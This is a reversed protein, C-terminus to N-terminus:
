ARKDCSDKQKKMVLKRLAAVEKESLEEDQEQMLSRAEAEDVPEIVFQIEGKYIQGDEAVFLVTGMVDYVCDSDMFGGAAEFLEESDEIGQEDISKTGGLLWKAIRIM